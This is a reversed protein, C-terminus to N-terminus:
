YYYLILLGELDNHPIEEKGIFKKMVNVMLDSYSLRSWSKFEEETLHPVECPM